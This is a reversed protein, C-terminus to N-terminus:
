CNYFYKGKLEFLIDERYDKLKNLLAEGKFLKLSFPIGLNIYNHHHESIHGLKYAFNNLKSLENVLEEFENM